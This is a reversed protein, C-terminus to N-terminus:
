HPRGRHTVSDVDQNWCILTTLPSCRAPVPQRELVGRSPEVPDFDQVRQSTLVMEHTVGRFLEGDMGYFQETSGDQTAWKIWEYFEKRTM